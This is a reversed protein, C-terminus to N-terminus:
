VLISKYNSKNKQVFQKYESDEYNKENSIVPSSTWFIIVLATCFLQAGAVLGCSSKWGLMDYSVAGSWGGIFGGISECMFWLSTVMGLLQESQGINKTLLALTGIFNMSMGIGHLVAGLCIQLLSSAMFVSAMQLFAVGVTSCGLLMVGKEDLGLDILKGVIPSVFAYVVGDVTFM